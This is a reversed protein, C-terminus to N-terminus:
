CLKQRGAGTGAHLIHELLEGAGQQCLGKSSGGSVPELGVFRHRQRSLTLGLATQAQGRSLERERERRM